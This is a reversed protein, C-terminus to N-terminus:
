LRFVQILPPDGRASAPTARVGAEPQTPFPDDTPRAPPPILHGPSPRAAAVVAGAILVALCMVAVEGMHHRDAVNSHAVTVTAGLVIVACGIAARRRRRRLM